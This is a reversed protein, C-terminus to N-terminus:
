WDEIIADKFAYPSVGASRDIVKLRMELINKYIESSQVM